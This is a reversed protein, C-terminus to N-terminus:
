SFLLERSVLNNPVQLLTYLAHQVATTAPPVAAPAAVRPPARRGWPIAAHDAAAPVRGRLRGSQRRWWRAAAPAAAAVRLGSLTEERCPPRRLRGAAAAGPLSLPQRLGSTPAAAGSGGGAAATRPNHSVAVVSGQTCRQHESGDCLSSTPSSQCEGPPETDGALRKRSLYILGPRLPSFACAAGTSDGASKAEQWQM